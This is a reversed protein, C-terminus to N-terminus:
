KSSKRAKPRGHTMVRCVAKLVAKVLELADEEPVTLLGGDFWEPHWKRVWALVDKAQKYIYDQLAGIVLAKLFEGMM